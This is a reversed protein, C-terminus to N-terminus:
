SASQSPKRLPSILVTPVSLVDRQRAVLFGSAPSCPERGPRGHQARMQRRQQVVAALAANRELGQDVARGTSRGLDIADIRALAGNRHSRIRIRTM